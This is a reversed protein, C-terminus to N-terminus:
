KGLIINIIANVDDVDVIGSGDIDAVGTFDSASNRDLIINIVANVDDVDVIGSDDVDGTLTSGSGGFTFSIRYDQGDNNLYYMEGNAEGEVWFHLCYNGNRLIDSKLLETPDNNSWNGFEDLQTPITISYLDNGSADYMKYNLNLWSFNGDVFVFAEDNTISQLPEEGTLDIDEFEAGEEVWPFLQEGPTPTVLMSLGLIAPDRPENISFYFLFNDNDKGFFHYKGNEDVLQFMIRLVYEGPPLDRTILVQENCTSRYTHNRSSILTNLENCEISNWQGESENAPYIMYQLTASTIGIDNKLNYRMSFYVVTLLDVSGPMTENDRTGDSYYRYQLNDMGTYLYFEAADNSVWEVEDDVDSGALAFMVKYNQGGNNLLLQNGSNDNGKVYLELVYNGAGHSVEVLDQNIDVSWQGNGADQLGFEMWEEPTEGSKYMAAVLTVDTMVGSATAEFTKVVLSPAQGYGTYDAVAFGSVPLSISLDGDPTGMTIKGGTFEAGNAQAVLLVMVLILISKIKM